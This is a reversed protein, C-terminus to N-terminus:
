VFRTDYKWYDCLKKHQEILQKQLEVREDMLKIKEELSNEEEIKSSIIKIKNECLEIEMLLLEKELKVIDSSFNYSGARDTNIGLENKFRNGRSTMTKQESLTNIVSGLLFSGRSGSNMDNAKKLLDDFNVNYNIHLYEALRDQRALEKAINIFDIGAIAYGTRGGVVDRNAINLNGTRIRRRLTEVNVKLVDAVMTIPFVEKLFKEPVKSFIETDYVVDQQKKDTSKSISAVATGIAAAVLGHAVFPFM